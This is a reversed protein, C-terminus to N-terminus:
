SVALSETLFKRLTQYFDDKNVPKVLFTDCGSMKGKVRDLASSNSTLLIVPIDKTKPDGKIKRCAEYGDIGPMVVDLFVINYHSKELASLAQEGSEAFNAKVNVKELAMAIQKRVPLSDDVVLAQYQRAPPTRTTSSEFASEDVPAPTTDPAELEKVARDLVALVRTAILPRRLSLTNEGPENQTLIVTPPLTHLNKQANAWRSVDGADKRDLMMIRSDRPASAAALLRYTNPRDASVVFIRRLVELEADSIGFTAVDYTSQRDGAMM